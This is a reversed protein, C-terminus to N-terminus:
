DKRLVFTVIRRGTTKEALVRIRSDRTVIGTPNGQNDLLEEGVDVVSEGADHLIRANRHMDSLGMYPNQAILLAESQAERKAKM